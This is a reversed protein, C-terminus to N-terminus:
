FAGLLGNWINVRPTNVDGKFDIEKNSYFRVFNMSKMSNFGSKDLCHYHKKRWTGTCIYIKERGNKKSLFNNSFTHSHGAVLYNLNDNLMFSEDEHELIQKIVPRSSEELSLSNMIRQLLRDPMSLFARGAHKILNGYVDSRDPWFRRDHARNWKDFFKKGSGYFASTLMKKISEKIIEIENYEATGENKDLEAFFWEMAASMPRLDDLEKLKKYVFLDTKGPTNTDLKREIRFEHAIRSMIDTTIWDGLPANLYLKDDRKGKNEKRRFVFNNECNQWDYVHGHKALVRYESFEREWPFPEENLNGQSNNINFLGRIKRNLSRFVNVFRDHNGPIYEFTIRANQLFDSADKSIKLENIRGEHTLFDKCFQLCKATNLEKNNNGAISNFIDEMIGELGTNNSWDGGDDGHDIYPQVDEAFWRETRLFDFIDGNLVIKLEADDMKGFNDYFQEAIVSFFTKFANASVNHDIVPTGDEDKLDHEIDQFHIDSLVVLM